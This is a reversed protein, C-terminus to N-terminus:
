KAKEYRQWVMRAAGLLGAKDILRSRVIPMKEARYVYSRAFVEKMMYPAFIGWANAVGGGVIYKELDLVNTLDAIVIGLAWGVLQFIRLAARDGKKAWQSIEVATVADNDRFLRRLPKSDGRDAAARARRVVWTASAYTEACGYSGCNCREGHPDVIMHGTEAATGRTGSWIKGELVIGCGVGTGLTLLSANRVGRAAGKWVEGLAAVNADNDVIVEVPLIREMKAKVPFIGKGPFNPSEHLERHYYVLGPIGVGVGVLRRKKKRLDSSLDLILDCTREIVDDRGREVQTPIRREELIKGEYDVAAVRLNTGGLDVSAVFDNKSIKM